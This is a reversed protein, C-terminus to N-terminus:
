THKIQVKTGFLAIKSTLFDANDVANVGASVEEWLSVSGDTLGDSDVVAVKEDDGGGGVSDNSDEKLAESSM